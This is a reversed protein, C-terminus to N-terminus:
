VGPDAKSMVTLIQEADTLGASQQAFSAALLGSTCEGTPRARHSIMAGDLALVDWVTDICSHLLNWIM